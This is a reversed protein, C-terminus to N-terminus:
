IFSQWEVEDANRQLQEEEVRRMGDKHQADLMEKRLRSERERWNEGMLDGDETWRKGKSM